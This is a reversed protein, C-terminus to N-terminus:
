EIEKVWDRNTKYWDITARLGEELAVGPIWNLLRMAKACDAQTATVDAPHRPRYEISAKCGTLHEIIHVVDSLNVMKPNGLNIIEYGRLPLAALTGQAIDDIYTFSRTQTGDGYILISRGEVISRVFRFISMDPRGAPGYVTFYRLVTVDLGYLYHYTHCLVEAAKKSAAYPSLPADTSADDCFPLPTHLGYLSSTSALIFRRVGAECCFELLNLTGLVNTEYFIRPEEVSSRVGACAALHLIADFRADSIALHGIAEVERIDLRHFAFNHSKRLRALRWEKLRVDYARSMNDVGVVTHGDSLLFETVKAGIFGACGTVLYNAM